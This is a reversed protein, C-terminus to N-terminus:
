VTFFKDKGLSLAPRQGQFTMGPLLKDKNLAPSTPWFDFVSKHQSKWGCWYHSKPQPKPPSMTDTRSGLPSFVLILCQSLLGHNHSPTGGGSYVFYFLEPCWPKPLIRHINDCMTVTQSEMPLPCSVGEVQIGPTQGRHRKGQRVKNQANGRYYFMIILM